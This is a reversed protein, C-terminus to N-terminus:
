AGGYKDRENYEPRYTKSLKPILKKLKKDLKKAEVILKEVRTSIDEISNNLGKKQLLKDKNVQNLKKYQKKFEWKQGSGDEAKIREILEKAKDTLEITKEDIVKSLNNYWNIDSYTIRNWRPLEEYLDKHYPLEYRYQISEPFKFICFDNIHESLRSRVEKYNDILKKIIPKDLPIRYAKYGMYGIIATVIILIFLLWDSVAGFILVILIYIIPILFIPFPFFGGYKSPYVMIM